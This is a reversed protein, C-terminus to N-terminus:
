EELFLCWCFFVRVLAALRDSPCLFICDHIMGFIFITAGEEVEELPANHYVKFRPIIKRCRQGESWGGELVVMIEDAVPM